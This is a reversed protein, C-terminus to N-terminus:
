HEKRRIVNATEASRTHSPMLLAERVDCAKAARRTSNTGRGHINKQMYVSHYCRFEVPRCASASCQDYMRLTKHVVM